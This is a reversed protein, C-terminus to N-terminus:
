LEKKLKERTYYVTFHGKNRGIVLDAEELKKIHHTISGESLGVLKALVCNCMEGKKILSYILFRKENSLASYRKLKSKFEESERIKNVTEKKKSIFEKSCQEKSCFTKVFDEIRSEM